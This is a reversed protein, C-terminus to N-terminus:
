PYDKWQEFDIWMKNDDWIGSSILGNSESYDYNARDNWVLGSIKIYTTNNVLIAPYTDKLTAGTVYPYEYRLIGDIIVKRRISWLAENDQTGAMAYGYYTIGTIFDGNWPDKRQLDLAM